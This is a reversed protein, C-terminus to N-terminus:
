EKIPVAGSVGGKGRKGNTYDWYNVHPYEEASGPKANPHAPDLRYGKKSDGRQPSGFKGNSKPLTETKDLGIKSKADTVADKTSSLSGKNKGKTSAKKLKKYAKKPNVIIALVTAVAPNVGLKASGATILKDAMESGVDLISMAEVTDSSGRKLTVRSGPSKFEIDQVCSSCETESSEVEYTDTSTVNGNEDVNNVYDTTDGGKNSKWVLDGNALKDWEDTPAMGDPDIFYIPNNFAYNYPSFRRMKEALPDINMWRGLSADYNRAGFDYWDLGLEDNMEKGGFKYKLAINTSTVNTNYGKHRLGFPYYNNEELIESTAIFGDGNADKYSLRVNGLHDKYQYAYSFSSGNVDVYGEPHNFFKLSGDQYVYNGAYETIAGTSVTKKLKVGTADYIYSINGGSLPVNTPLNLHNYTINSSIGKNYDRLMNGNSDYTYETLSTSGNVFGYTSNGGTLEQVNQLQNSSPYYNYDLKDMVGYNTVVGSGNINTHGRRELFTINGNKDYDVDTLNYNSSNAVGSKIRNLADYAYRYWRLSNDNATKWETEAINGNYLETGGHDKTNYNIGFSFLDTGLNYPNNIQKLWGRINYKYDVDQLRNANTSSGGVGKSELQGLEDYHNESIVELANTDNLEQTQKTFRGMHDYFFLDETDITIEKDIMRLNKIKNQYNHISGDGILTGSSSIASTYFVVGNKKYYITSGIREVRFQDGRKYTGFIGKYSGSEYIYYYGNSNNYIAFDITNYSASSNDSSLGLMLRQYNKEVTFEIYGDGSFSGNTAIGGNWANSNTTKTIENGNVSVYVLDKFGDQMGRDHSTETKEVAGTFDLKSKVIDTTELYQNDSKVYIPRGKIDYGTITTIWKVPNSDLVRVKSGTALGKTLKQTGSANNYNIVTQGDIATPMITFGDFTYNDYYNITLIEIATEAIYITNTFCKPYYINIGNIDISSSLKNTFQLYSGTNIHNQMTSRAWSPRYVKGTYSVRGFSDYATFLWKGQARLNADQTIIPQDLENYMIYERGKGPIQKEVLRNRSDYEYQYCLESLETSSVGNSTDVKPPIVYTLNGYDDYVYYTDHATASSGVLAYTRKLVVRGQKDKFEETTHLKSATGDHNEDKTITKYLTHITYYGNDVLSPSYVKINSSTSETINVKYKRVETGGTNTQYGFEIEHGSGLKWDEGPAAQKQVRSLPSAELEKQSYPNPSLANIDGPFKSTYYSTVISAADTRYIGDTSAEAYPLYGKDQRGYDDYEIHTVIDESNGGARIGINQIPRGLGDFYSVSEIKEDNLVSGTTTPVRYTSNKIYNQDTPNSPPPSSGQITVNLTGKVTSKNKFTVSGAGPGGWQVDVYYNTGSSGSLVETGGVILWNPAKQILANNFQYRHTSLAQVNQLGVQASLTCFQGMTIILAITYVVKKDLIKSIAQIM